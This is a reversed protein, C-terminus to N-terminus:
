ERRRSAYLPATAVFFSPLAAAIRVMVVTLRAPQPRQAARVAHVQAAAATVQASIAQAAAPARVASGVGTLASLLASLLLLLNMARGAYVNHRRADVPREPETMTSIYM